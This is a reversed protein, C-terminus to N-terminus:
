LGYLFMKVIEEDEEVIPKYNDKCLVADKILLDELEKEESKKSM